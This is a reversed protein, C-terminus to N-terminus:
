FSNDSAGNKKGVRTKLNHHRFVKWFDDTNWDNWAWTKNLDDLDPDPCLIVKYISYLITKDAWDFILNNWIKSPIATTM